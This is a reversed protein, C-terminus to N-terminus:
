RLTKVCCVSQATSVNRYALVTRCGTHTQYNPDSVTYALALSVSQALLCVMVCVQKLHTGRSRWGTSPRHLLYARLCLLVALRWTLQTCHHCHPQAGLFLPQKNTGAAMPLTRMSYNGWPHAVTVRAISLSWPPLFIVRTCWRAASHSGRQPSWKRTSRTITIHRASVKPDTAPAAPRIPGMPSVWHAPQLSTHGRSTLSAM